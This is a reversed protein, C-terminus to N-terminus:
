ENNEGQNHLIYQFSFHEIGCILRTDSLDYVVLEEAQEIDKYNPLWASLHTRSYMVEVGNNLTIAQAVVDETDDDVLDWVTANPVPLCARLSYLSRNNLDDVNSIIFLRENVKVIENPTVPVPIEPVYSYDRLEM